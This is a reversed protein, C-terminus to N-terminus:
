HVTSEGDAARQRQHSEMQLLEALLEERERAGVAELLAQKEEPSFPLAACLANLLVAGPLDRLRDLDFDLGTRRAFDALLELLPTAQREEHPEALDATFEEYGAEVRRYGRTMQLEQRIRFRIVGRLLLRVRGDAQPESKEIVGACGVPYVEPEGAPSEVLPRAYGGRGFPQVMGIYGCSAEADRVLSLYRPEFVNLPLYNGPLLLCGNLPFIPLERPLDM